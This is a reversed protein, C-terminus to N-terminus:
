ISKASPSSCSSQGLLWVYPITAHLHMKNQKSKDYVCWGEVQTSVIEMSLTIYLTLYPLNANQLSFFHEFYRHSLFLSLSYFFSPSIYFNFIRTVVSGVFNDFWNKDTTISGCYRPNPWFSSRMLSSFHDQFFFLRWRQSLSYKNTVSSRKLRWKQKGCGMFKATPLISRAVIVRAKGNKILTVDLLIM